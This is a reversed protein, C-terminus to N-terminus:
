CSLSQSHQCILFFLYSAIFLIMRNLNKKSKEIQKRQTLDKIKLLKKDMIKKFKILLILDFVINLIVFLLDNLTRNVIKFANFLQCQFSNTENNCYQEDRIEYPFEKLM